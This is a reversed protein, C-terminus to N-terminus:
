RSPCGALRVALLRVAFGSPASSSRAGGLLGVAPGLVRLEEHGVAHGLVERPAIASRPAAAGRPMPPSTRGSGCPADGISASSSSVCARRCAAPRSPRRLEGHERGVGLADRRAVAPPLTSFAMAAARAAPQDAARGIQRRGGLGSVKSPAPDSRAPLRHRGCCANRRARAHSPRSRWRCPATRDARRVARGEQDEGVIHARRDAERRDHLQRGHEDERVVRDADTLVARGVLRDLMEGRQAGNRAEVRDPGAVGVFDDLRPLDRDRRVLRRGAQDERTLRQRRQVARLIQPRPHAALAGIHQGLVLAVGSTM